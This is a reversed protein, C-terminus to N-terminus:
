DKECVERREGYSCFDTSLRYGYHRTCVFDVDEEHKWHKCDKCRVVKVVDAAPLNSLYEVPVVDITGYERTQVTLIDANNLLDDREIYEAM